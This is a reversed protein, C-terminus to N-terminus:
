WLRSYTGNEGAPKLGLRQAARALYDTAKVNGITGAERGLLSDDAFDSLRRRLEAINVDPTTASRATPRATAQADSASGQVMLLLAAGVLASSASRYM